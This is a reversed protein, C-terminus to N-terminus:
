RSHTGDAQRQLQYGRRFHVPDEMKNNLSFSM